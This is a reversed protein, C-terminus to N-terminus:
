QALTSPFGMDATAATLDQVATRTDDFTVTATREQYSVDVESVGDVRTLSQKIIYPCSACNMNEVALTVTQETAFVAGSTALMTSLLTLRFLSKMM